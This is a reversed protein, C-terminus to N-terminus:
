RVQFVVREREFEDMSNVEKIITKLSGDVVDMWQVMEAFQQHYYEWQAPIQQLAARMAEIQQATQEWQKDANQYSDALSTDGAPAFQGYSHSIRQMNHLSQEIQVVTGRNKFFDQNRNLISDVDENKNLAQQELHLEKEVDQIYHTFNSEELRYELRVIHLHAATLTTKWKAQLKEIEDIIPQHESQPLTRLLEQATTVLDNMWRENVNEFFLKQTEIAHKSDVHNDTLLIDAQHLWESVVREAEKFNHWARTAEKLRLEWQQASQSVANFRDNLEQMRKVSQTTDVENGSSVSRLLNQFVKNKSELMSKYYLTRSFFNRHRNLHENIQDKNGNLSLSQLLEEGDNLWQHIDKQGQELSEQQTLLQHFLHLKIPIQARVRVLAEKQQKLISLMRDVEDRSLDPVLTQVVRSTNKFIEDIEDIESSLQQLQEGYLKIQETSGIASSNLISDANQLWKAVQEAGNRYEQRNRLMDGAHMYQKTKAFLQEFRGNLNAFQSRLEQAIPETCTAVLFQVCNNLEDHKEKRMSIDQFFELRDDENGRRQVDEAKQLWEAFVPAESNWRKWNTVVEELMSQCYRLESSVTKWKDDTDRLFKEIEFYEQRSINGDRRYEEVVNQMDIFAKGFEQFIKNRSVFNKYQELMQAAEPEHGYKVTWQRLKTEVLNLFAILCCKHELFKLRIRRQAAKPGVDTLRREMHRLQEVPVQDAYPSQKAQRFIEVIQEYDAFFAKHEELKRSIIAATEENMESPIEDNFLLKEAEALWKGVQGFGGPLNADLLWLWYMLQMNLTHWMSDIEDWSAATLTVQSNHSEVISKLKNYLPLRGDVEAQAAQYQNFDNPFSQTRIVQQYYTTKTHLWQSFESYEEQLSTVGDRGTGQTRLIQNIFM